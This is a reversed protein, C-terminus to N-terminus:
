YPATALYYTAAALEIFLLEIGQCTNAKTVKYIIPPLKNLLVCIRRSIVLNTLIKIRFSFYKQLFTM